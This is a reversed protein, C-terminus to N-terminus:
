GAMQEILQDLETVPLETLAVFGNVFAIVDNPPDVLTSECDSAAVEVGQDETALPVEVTDRIAGTPCSPINILVVTDPAPDDVDQTLLGARNTELWSVVADVGAEYDPEALDGIALGASSAVAPIGLRAAARAAGVTGSIAAIPGINQGENIGSVVLHPPEDLNGQEIAWVITDAPEGQVATAEFGSATTAPGAELDGVTTSDGSGSQNEAPAVVTVETDPLARLAEVVADIGPAGVGDDNTVLIRLTADGAATTSTIDDGSTTTVEAPATTATDPATDGDDDSCSILALPLALVALAGLPRRM